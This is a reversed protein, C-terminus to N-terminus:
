RVTAVAASVPALLICCAKNTQLAYSLDNINQVKPSIIVKTSDEFETKQGELHRYQSLCLQLCWDAATYCSIEFFKCWCPTLLLSRETTTRNEVVTVVIVQLSFHCIMFSYSCYYRNDSLIYDWFENSIWGGALRRIFQCVIVLSSFAIYLRWWKTYKTHRNTQTNRHMHCSHCQAYVCVLHESM